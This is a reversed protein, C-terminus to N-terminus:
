KEMVERYFCEVDQWHYYPYIDTEVPISVERENHLIKVIVDKNKKHRFFVLQINSAKPTCVSANWVTYFDEVSRERQVRNDDLQM